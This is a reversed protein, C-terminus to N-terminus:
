PEAKADAADGDEEMEWEDEDDAEIFVPVDRAGRRHISVVTYEGDCNLRVTAGGMDLQEGPRLKEAGAVGKLAQWRRSLSVLHVGNLRAVDDVVDRDVLFCEPQLIYSRSVTDYFALDHVPRSLRMSELTNLAAEHSPCAEVRGKTEQFWPYILKVTDTTRHSSFINVKIGVDDVPRATAPSREPTETGSFQLIGKRPEPAKRIRANAKLKVKQVEGTPKEASTDNAGPDAVVPEGARFPLGPSEAAVGKLTETTRCFDAIKGRAPMTKSIRSDSKLDPENVYGAANGRATIIQMAEELSTRFGDDRPTSPNLDQLVDLRPPDSSSLQFYCGGSTGERDLVHDISERLSNM